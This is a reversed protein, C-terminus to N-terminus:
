FYYGIEALIRQGEVDDGWEYNYYGSLYTKGWLQLQGNIRLWNQIRDIKDSITHYLNQGTAISLHHGSAFHKGVSLSPVWGSSYYNSYGGLSLSMSFRKFFLDNKRVMIRGSYTTESDNQRKRIGLQLSTYYKDPLKVYMDARLGHRFLTDYINESLERTDYTYYNKRNDYTLGGRLEPTFNYRASLYFSSLSLPTNTKDRRWSRNLDIEFSNYLSLKSRTRYSSQVYLNERSVTKGHYIANLAVTTEFRPTMFNESLYSFFLGYKQFSTVNGAFQWNSQAGAYIGWNFESSINHQLFLGDLYGIGSIKNTMIRGFKYNVPSHLDEYSFYFSYIRNRWEEQPATTAYNKSRFNRRLRMNIKLHYEKGWIQRAQLYFRANPQDFNLEKNSFDGFHYWQLSLRGNIKAFSVDQRGASSERKTTKTESTVVVPVVGEINKRKVLTASMGPSFDAIKELVACSSSHASTFEIIMIAATEGNKNVLLTDGVEIGSDRGKDVYINEYSIYSINCVVTKDQALSMGTFMGLLVLLLSKIKQDDIMQNGTQIVIM